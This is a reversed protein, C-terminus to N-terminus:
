KIVLSVRPTGTFANMMFASILLRLTKPSGKWCWCGWLDRATRIGESLM